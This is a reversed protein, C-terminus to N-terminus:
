NRKAGYNKKNFFLTKNNKFLFNIMERELFLIHKEKIMNLKRENILKTQYILWKSWAEYSIHNYIIEGIDGPYVKYNLKIMKCQFYICFIKKSM